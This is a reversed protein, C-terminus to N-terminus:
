WRYGARLRGTVFSSPRNNVTGSGDIYERTFNYPAAYVEGALSLKEVVKVHQLQSHAFQQHGKEELTYMPPAGPTSLVRWVTYLEKSWRAGQKQVNSRQGASKVYSADILRM